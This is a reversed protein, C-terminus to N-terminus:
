RGYAPVPCYQDLNLTNVLREDAEVAYFQTGRDTLISAPRGHKAVAEKLVEVSRESTAEPFLRWGVVFRPADDLYATM